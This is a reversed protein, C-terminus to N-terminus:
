HSTKTPLSFKLNLQNLGIQSNTHTTTHHMSSPVRLLVVPHNKGALTHCGIQPYGTIYHNSGVDYGCTIMLQPSPGLNLSSIRM